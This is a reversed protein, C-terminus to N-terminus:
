AGLLRSPVTFFAPESFPRTLSVGGMTLTSLPRPPPDNTTPLLPFFPPFSMDNRRQPSRYGCGGRKKGGMVSLLPFGKLLIGLSITDKTSSVLIEKGDREWEQSTLCLRWGCWAERKAPEM